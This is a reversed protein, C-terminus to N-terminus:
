PFHLIFRRRHPIIEIQDILIIHRFILITDYCYYSDGLHLSQCLFLLDKHLRRFSFTNSHKAIRLWTRIYRRSKVPCYQLLQCVIWKIWRTNGAHRKRHQNLKKSISGLKSESPKILYWSPNAFSVNLVRISRMLSSFLSIAFSLDNPLPNQM